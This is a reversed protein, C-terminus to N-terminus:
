SSLPSAPWSQLIRMYNGREFAQPDPSRMLNMSGQAQRLSAYEHADLWRELDSLVIALYGPGHELLAAVIQV